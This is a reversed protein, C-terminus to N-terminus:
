MALSKCHRPQKCGAPVRGLRENAYLGIAPPSKLIPEQCTKSRTYLEPERHTIGMLM